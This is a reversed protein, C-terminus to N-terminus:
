LGNEEFDFEYLFFIHEEYFILIIYNGQKRQKMILAIAITIVIALLTGLVAGVILAGNSCPKTTIM